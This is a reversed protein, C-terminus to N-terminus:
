CSSLIGIMDVVMLDMMAAVINMAVTALASILRLQVTLLMALAGSGVVNLNMIFGADFVPDIPLATIFSVVVPLVYVSVLM